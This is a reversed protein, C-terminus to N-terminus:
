YRGHGPHEFASSILRNRRLLGTCGTDRQLPILGLQQFFCELQGIFIAAAIGAILAEREFMQVGAGIIPITCTTLTARTHM